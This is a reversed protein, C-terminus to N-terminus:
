GQTTGSSRVEPVVSRARKQSRVGYLRGSIVLTGSSLLLRGARGNAGLVAQLNRRRLVPRWVGSGVRPNSCPGTWLM